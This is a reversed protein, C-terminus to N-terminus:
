NSPISRARLVEPFNRGTSAPYNMILCIKKAPDIVFVSRVIYNDEATRWSSNDEASAPLMGYLKM